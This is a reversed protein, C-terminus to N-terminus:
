PHIGMMTQHHLDALEKLLRVDELQAQAKLIQANRPDIEDYKEFDRKRDRTYALYSAMWGGSNEAGSEAFSSDRGAGSIASSLDHGTGGSAGSAAVTAAAAGPGIAADLLEPAQAGLRALDARVDAALAEREDRTLGAWVAAIRGLDEPATRLWERLPAPIYSDEGYVFEVWRKVDDQRPKSLATEQAEVWLLRLMLLAKVAQATTM